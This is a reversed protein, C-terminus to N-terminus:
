PRLLGRLKMDNGIKTYQLQHLKFRDKLEQIGKGGIAPSNQGTLMPCLYIVLEDLYGEELFAAALEGGCELLVHNVGRERVLERLTKELSIKQYVLTRSSFQDKFLPLDEPLSGGNSLIVRWPQLKGKKMEVHRITLSCHDERATKGSTIIADVESRLHHVDILSEKSSLWSGEKKPRTLNGDLSMALKLTVWPLGTRQVKSFPRILEECEKKCCGSQVEIQSKKLILDAKGSHSLHPDTAGYIVKKIGKQILADTCAGTRGHSSCPELTVYATSGLLSENESAAIAVREAHPLGDGHHWGKSLLKGERVLVCGVPPNPSTLGLGKKAEAIALQMWKRDAQTEQHFM